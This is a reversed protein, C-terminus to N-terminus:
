QRKWHTSLIISPDDVHRHEAGWYLFFPQTPDLRLDSTRERSWVEASGQMWQEVSTQEADTLTQARGLSPILLLAAISFLRTSFGQMGIRIALANETQKDDIAPFAAFHTVISGGARVILRFYHPKM